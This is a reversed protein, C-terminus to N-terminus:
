CQFAEVSFERKESVKDSMYYIIETFQLVQCLTVFQETIVSCSLRIKRGFDIECFYFLATIWLVLISGGKKLMSWNQLCIFLLTNGWCLASFYLSLTESFRCIVTTLKSIFYSIKFKMNENYFWHILKWTRVAPTEWITGESNSWRATHPARDSTESHHAGEM